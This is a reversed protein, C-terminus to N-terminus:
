GVLKQRPFTGGPHLTGVLQYGPTGGRFGSILLHWLEAGEFGDVCCQLAGRPPLHKPPPLACHPPPTLGLSGKGMVAEEPQRGACLQGRGRLKILEQLFHRQLVGRQAGGECGGRLAICVGVGSCGVPPQPLGTPIVADARAVHSPHPPPPCRAAGGWVSGWQTAHVQCLNRLPPPSRPPPVVANPYWETREGGWGGWGHVRQVKFCLAVAGPAPPPQPCPTCAPPEWGGHPGMAECM